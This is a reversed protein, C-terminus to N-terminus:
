RTMAKAAVTGIRTANATSRTSISCIPVRDVHVNAESSQYEVIRQQVRYTLDVDTSGLLDRVPPSAPTIPVSSATSRSSVTASMDGDLVATLTPHARFDTM